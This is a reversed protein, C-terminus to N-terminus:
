FIGQSFVKIFCNAISFFPNQKLRKKSIDKSEKFCDLAFKNKITLNLFKNKDNQYLASM